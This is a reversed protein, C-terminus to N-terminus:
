EWISALMIVAHLNGNTADLTIRQPSALRKQQQIDDLYGLVGALPGDVTLQVDIRQRKGRVPESLLQISQTLGRHDALQDLTDFFAVQDDTQVFAQGLTDNRQKLAEYSREDASSTRQKTQIALLRQNQGVELRTSTVTQWLPLLVVFTLGTTVLVGLGLILLARRNM